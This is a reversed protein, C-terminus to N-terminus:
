PTFIEENTLQFHAMDDFGNDSVSFDRDWDSGWTLSIGIGEAIGLVYGAFLTFRERDTWDVPYPVIDIALSSPYNNHYSKPYQAKSKGAHFLAQQEREGRRGSIARCDVTKVVEEFVRQIRKDCTDLIARSHESFKAM